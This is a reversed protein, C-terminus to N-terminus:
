LGTKTSCSEIKSTGDFQVPYKGNHSCIFEAIAADLGKRDPCQIILIASNRPMTEERAKGLFAFWQKVIARSLSSIHITNLISFM